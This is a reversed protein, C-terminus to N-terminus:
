PKAPQPERVGGVLEDILADLLRSNSISVAPNAATQPRVSAYANCFLNGGFVYVKGHGFPQM